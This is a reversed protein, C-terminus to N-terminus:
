KGFSFTKLQRNPPRAMSWFHCFCHTDLIDFRLNYAYYFYDASDRQVPREVRTEMWSESRLHFAIVIILGFIVLSGWAPRKSM